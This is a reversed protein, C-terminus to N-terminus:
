LLGAQVAVTYVLTGGLIFGLLATGGAGAARLVLYVSGGETPTHSGALSTFAIAHALRCLIFIGALSAILIGPAGVMEALALAVLFLASNEALNGHRRLKRELTQDDGIGAGIGVKGRYLGVNLMLAQQLVILLGAAFATVIPVTM